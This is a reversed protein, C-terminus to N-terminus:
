SAGLLPPTVPTTAKPTSRTPPFRGPNGPTQCTYPRPKFARESLRVGAMGAFHGGCSSWGVRPPGYPPAIPTLNRLRMLSAGPSCRL